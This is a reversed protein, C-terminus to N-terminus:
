LVDMQEPVTDAMAATHINAGAHDEMHQLTAVRKGMTKEISQLPIEAGTCPAGNRGAEERVKTDVPSNKM